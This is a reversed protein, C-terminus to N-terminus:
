EEAQATAEKIARMARRHRRRDRELQKGEVIGAMYSLGALTWPDRQYKKIQEAMIEAGHKVQGYTANKIAQPIAARQREERAVFQRVIEIMQRQNDPTLADYLALAERARQEQTTHEM